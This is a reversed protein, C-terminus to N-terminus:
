GFSQYFICCLSSPQFIARQKAMRGREREREREKRGRQKQMAEKGKRASKARGVGGGAVVWMRIHRAKVLREGEGDTERLGKNPWVAGSFDFAFLQPETGVRGRVSSPRLAYLTRPLRAERKQSVLQLM